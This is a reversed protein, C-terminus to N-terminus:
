PMLIGDVTCKETCAFYCWMMWLWFDSEFVIAHPQGVVRTRTRYRNSHQYNDTSYMQAQYWMWSDSFFIVCCKPKVGGCAGFLKTCVSGGGMWIFLAVFVYCNFAVILWTKVKMEVKARQPIRRCCGTYGKDNMCNSDLAFAMCCNLWIQCM